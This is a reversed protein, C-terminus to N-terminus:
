EKILRKTQIKNHNNELTLTYAGPAYGLLNINLQGSSNPIMISNILQGLVDYVKISCQNPIDSISYNVLV